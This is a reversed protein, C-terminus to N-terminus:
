AEGVVIRENGEDAHEAACESCFPGDAREFTIYYGGPFKIVWWGASKAKCLGCKM